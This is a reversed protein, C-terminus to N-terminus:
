AEKGTEEEKKRAVQEQTTMHHQLAEWFDEFTIRRLPFSSFLTENKRM